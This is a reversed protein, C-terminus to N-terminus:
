KKETLKWADKIKKKNANIILFFEQDDKEIERLGVRYLRISLLFTAVIILPPIYLSISFGNTIYNNIVLFVWVFISVFLIVATHLILVWEARHRELSYSTNEDWLKSTISFYSGAQEVPVELLGAIKKHFKATNKRFNPTFQYVKLMDMLYGIAISFLLITLVSTDSVIDKILNSEFYIAPLLIVFLIFNLGTLSYRVFDTFNINKFDM